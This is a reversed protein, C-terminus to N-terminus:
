PKLRHLGPLCHWQHTAFTDVHLMEGGWFLQLHTASCRGHRTYQAPCFAMAPLLGRDACRVSVQSAACTM